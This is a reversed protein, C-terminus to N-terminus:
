SQEDSRGFFFYLWQEFNGRTERAPLAVTEAQPETQKPLIIVKEGEAVLGLNERASLEMFEPSEHYKKQFELNQTELSLLETEQAMVDVRQQLQFNRQMAGITNWLLSAAVLLAVLLVGDELSFVAQLKRSLSKIMPKEM